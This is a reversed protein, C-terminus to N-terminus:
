LKVVKCKFLSGTLACRKCLSHGREIADRKSLFNRVLCRICIQFRNGILLQWYVGTAILRRVEDADGVRAAAVIAPQPPTQPPESYQRGTDNRLRVLSPINYVSM